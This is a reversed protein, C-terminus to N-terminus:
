GKNRKEKNKSLMIIAENIADDVTKVEDLIMSYGVEVGLSDPVERMERVMKKTYELVKKEDYGVMYVLFEDGGTRVIDTNELQNNILVSAIRKIILDGAERGLKDNVEKLRNIDFVVVSQPFIVNDDWKYINMNLYSRNKLSTIPDIYKLKEEKSIITNTVNKRNILVITCILFLILAVIFAIVKITSYDKVLSIDTNYLYKISNYDISSIYYDFLANFTANEDNMVFKYAEKVNGEYNIKYDKLKDDKYYLYTQEDVLIVSSDDISLLLDNTDDYGVVALGVEKALDFLASNSVVSVKSDTIGKLSNILIDQKSLVLYDLNVVSNTIFKELNLNDYNFNGLAFDIEGGVLASKLEDISNYHVVEIEVNAVEEFNNLYNSITGVFEQNVSNEYPMNVIYGYKYAKANYNKKAVDTTETSEFYLNLYNRSYDEEYEENVYDRYIKKMISYTTDDKVRLVYKKKLDELHYFIHLNKELIVNMQGTNPVVAYTIEKSSIAELLKNIDEYLSFEVEEGLYEEFVEEDSTLIGIKEVSTWDFEEENDNGVVVYHDEYLLIDDETLKQKSDLLMFSFNDEEVSSTTYYSIKNFNIAYKETFYTLFDFIIGSGNYGYIPVDNYVYVDVVKNAQDTLWKKELISLSTDDESYNFFFVSIGAVILLVIVLLTIIVNRKKKDM